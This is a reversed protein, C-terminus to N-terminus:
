GESGSRKTLMMKKKRMRIDLIVKLFILLHFLLFRFSLHRGSIQELFYYYYYFGLFVHLAKFSHMKIIASHLGAYMKLIAEM